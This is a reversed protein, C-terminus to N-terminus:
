LDETKGGHSEERLMLSTSASYAFDEPLALNTVSIPFLLKFSRKNGRLIGHPKWLKKLILINNTFLVWRHYIVGYFFPYITWHVETKALRCDGPAMSIEALAKM